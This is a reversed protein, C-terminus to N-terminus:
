SAVKALKKFKKIWAQVTKIKESGKVKSIKVSSVGSKGSRGDPCTVTSYFFVTNGNKTNTLKFPMTAKINTVLSTPDFVIKTKSKTLADKSKSFILQTQCINDENDLVIKANFQGKKTLSVKCSVNIDEPKPDIVNKLCSGYKSIYDSIEQVSEPSFSTPPDIASLSAKMIGSSVHSANFSHGLEHAFTLPTLVEDKLTGSVLLFDYEYFEKCVTGIYSIGLVRDDLVTGTFLAHVNGDNSEGREVAFERYNDLLMEPYSDSLSTIKETFIRIFKIKFIINFQKEYISEATNLYSKIKAASNSGFIKFWEYNAHIGFSLEKRTLSQSVVRSTKKANQPVIDIGHNCFSPARHSYRKLTGVNSNVPVKLLYLNNDGGRGNNAFFHISLVTEGNEEMVDAAVVDEYDKAKVKGRLLIVDDPLSAENYGNSIIPNVNYFHRKNLRFKLLGVGPIFTTVEFKPKREKRGLPYVGESLYSNLNSLGKVPVNFRSRSSEACADGILLVFLIFFLFLLKKM